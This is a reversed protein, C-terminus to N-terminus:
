QGRSVSKDDICMKGYYVEHKLSQLNWAKNQLSLVCKRYLQLERRSAQQPSRRPPSKEQWDTWDYNVSLTSTTRWTTRMCFQTLEFSNRPSETFFDVVNTFNRHTVVFRYLSFYYGGATSPSWLSVTHSILM